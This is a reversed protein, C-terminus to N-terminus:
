KLRLLWIREHERFDGALEHRSDAATEEETGSEGPFVPVEGTTDREDEDELAEDM